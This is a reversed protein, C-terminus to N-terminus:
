ITAHGQQGFVRTPPIAPRRNDRPGEAPGAPSVEHEVFCPCPVQLKVRYIRMAVDSEFVLSVAKALGEFGDDGTVEASWDIGEPRAVPLDDRVQKEPVLSLPFGLDVQSVAPASDAAELGNGIEIRRRQSNGQDDRKVCPIIPRAVRVKEEVVPLM